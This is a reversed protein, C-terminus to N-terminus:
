PTLEALRRAFDPDAAARQTIDRRIMYEIRASMTQSELRALEMFQQKTIDDIRVTIVGTKKMPNDYWFFFM